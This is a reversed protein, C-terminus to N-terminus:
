WINRLPPVLCWLTTFHLAGVCLTGGRFIDSEPYLNNITELGHHSIPFGIEAITVKQVGASSLSHIFHYGRSCEWPASQRPARATHLWVSQTVSLSLSASLLSASPPCPIFVLHFVSPSLAQFCSVACKTETNARTQTHTHTILLPQASIQLSSNLDGRSAPSAADMWNPRNARRDTAQVLYALRCRFAASGCHSYLGASSFISSLLESLSAPAAVTCQVM